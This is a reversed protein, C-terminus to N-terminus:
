SAFLRVEWTAHHEAFLDLLPAAAAPLADPDLAALESARLALDDVQPALAALLAQVPYPDLALIRVAASAPGSIAGYAAALAAERPGLGGAHALAGLAVPHHPDPPLPPLTWLARGVRVLSRGQARSAKRTAPSPTRADLAADFAAAEGPRQATAGAFAAAVYGATALRGRLFGGLSEVDSVQGNAVAAEVGGSHAHAGAPLRSDTLLLLTALSM